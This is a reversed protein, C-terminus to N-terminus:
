IEDYNESGVFSGFDVGGFSDGESSAGFYEDMETTARLTNADQKIARFQFQIGDATSSGFMRAIEKKDKPLDAPVDKCDVNQERAQRVVDAHAKLARFRHELAFETMDSGFLDVIVKYNWKVEPHAAIMARVLRAQAEYTKFNTKSSPAM